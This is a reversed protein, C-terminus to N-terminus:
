FRQRKARLQRLRPSRRPLNPRTSKSLGADLANLLTYALTETLCRLADEVFEQVDKRSDRDAFAMAHLNIEGAIEGNGIVCVM